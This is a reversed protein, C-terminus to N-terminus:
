GHVLQSCMVIGYAYVCPLMSYVICVLENATIKSPVEKWLRAYRVPVVAEQPNRDVHMHLMLRCFSARLEPPLRDDRMCRLILDVPLQTSMKDIALYQRGQCMKAFLNLQCRCCLVVGVLTVPSLFQFM